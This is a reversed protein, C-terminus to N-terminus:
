QIGFRLGLLVMPAGHPSGAYMSAMETLIM